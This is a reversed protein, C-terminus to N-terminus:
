VLGIVGLLFINDRGNPKTRQSLLPGSALHTQKSTKEIKDVQKAKKSVRREVTLFEVLKTYVSSQKVTWLQLEITAFFTFNRTTEAMEPYFRRAVTKSHPPATAAVYKDDAAVFECKKESLLFDASRFENNRRCKAYAPRRLVGRACKGFLLPRVMFELSTEACLEPTLPIMRLRPQQKRFSFSKAIVANGTGTSKVTPIKNTSNATIVKEIISKHFDFCLRLFERSFWM